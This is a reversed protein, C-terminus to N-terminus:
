FEHITGGRMSAFVICGEPYEFPGHPTKRPGYLYDGPLLTEGGVIQKGEVVMTVHHGTHTHEPETYGPPFRVLFDVRDDDDPDHRLIKVQVGEPLAVLGRGDTWDQEDPHVIVLEKSM